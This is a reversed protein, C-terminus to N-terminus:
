SYIPSSFTLQVSSIPCSSCQSAFLIFHQWAIHLHRLLVYSPSSRQWCHHIPCLLTSLLSTYWGHQAHPLHRWLGHGLRLEPAGDPEPRHSASRIGCRPLLHCHPSTRWHTPVWSARTAGLKAAWSDAALSPAKRGATVQLLVAQSAWPNYCFWPGM